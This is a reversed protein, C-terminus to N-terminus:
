PSVSFYFQLDGDTRNAVGWQTWGFWLGNQEFEAHGDPFYTTNQFGYALGKRIPFIEYTSTSTAEFDLHYTEGPLLTYTTAFKYTM